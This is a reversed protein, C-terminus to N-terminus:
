PKKLRSLRVEYKELVKHTVESVIGCISERGKPGRWDIGMLNPGSWGEPVGIIEMGEKYYPHKKLEQNCIEIFEDENVFEKSM